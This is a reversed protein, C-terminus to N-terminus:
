GRIPEAKLAARMFYYLGAVGLAFGTVEFIRRFLPPLEFIGGLAWGAAWTMVILETGVLIGVSVITILNQWNIPKKEAM